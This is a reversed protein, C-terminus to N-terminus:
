RTGNFYIRYLMNLSIMSLRVFTRYLYSLIPGDGSNCARICLLYGKCIKSAVPLFIVSM